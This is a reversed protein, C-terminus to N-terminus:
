KKNEMDEKELLDDFIISTCSGHSHIFNVDNISHYINISSHEGLWNLVVEGTSLIVGEAVRGTGSIGSVDQKREFHFRKIM